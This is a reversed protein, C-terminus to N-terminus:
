KIIGFRKEWKTHNKDVLEKNYYTLDEFTKIHDPPVDPWIYLRKGCRELSEILDHSDQRTHGSKLGHIEGAITNVYEISGDKIMKEIIQYESGEVDLKLIIFDEKKFNSIIWNSLDTCGITIKRGNPNKKRITSSSERGSDYFIVEGDYTHLAKNYLTISSFNNKNKEISDNLRSLLHPNSSAEFCFVEFDQTEGYLDKFKTISQGVNAGGDIFIKRM